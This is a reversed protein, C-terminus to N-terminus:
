KINFENFDIKKIPEVQKYSTVLFSNIQKDSWITVIFIIANMLSLM